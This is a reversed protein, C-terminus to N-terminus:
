PSHGFIERVGRLRTGLLASALSSDLSCDLPRGAPAPGRRVPRGAALEALAARSVADVGAVHLPGSIGIDLLELLAAALDGVQVPCRVEDEYFVLSPDLAAREHKSPEHGPGGVILSTRVVLAEPHEALVRREAEAKARGYDTVPRPADSELYPSGKRGDFVLDTSLHVLRAGAARAARAVNAAGDVTTEWAGDGDQRYATHIVAAPVLTRLLRSVSRADRVDVRETTADPRLRVLERGLFGTAGTVHLTGSPALRMM